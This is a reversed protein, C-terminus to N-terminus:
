GSKGPLSVFIPPHSSGSFPSVIDNLNSELIELYATQESSLQTGSLKEIYPMVLDKVNSLVREELDSQDEERAKLLVRLATNVDELNRSRFDLEAERERLVRETRRREAVESQLRENAATLEATREKVRFEMKEYATKLDEEANKRDTIDKTVHVLGTLEGSRGLIPSATVWFVKKMRRNTFEASHTQHDVLVKSAPCRKCLRDKGYFLSHCRIGVYERTDCKFAERITRNIRVVGRDADLITVFDEIADFTREWEERAQACDNEASKRGDREREVEKEARALDTKYQALLTELRDCESRLQAESAKFQEVEQSLKESDFM